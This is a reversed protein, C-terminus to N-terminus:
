TKQKLEPINRGYVARTSPASGGASGMWTKYLAALSGDSRLGSLVYNVFQVFASDGPPLGLGYPVDASPDGVIKSSTDQAQLGALTTDDGTIAVAEGEQFKVLCQGATPSTVIRAGSEVISALSSSGTVGCVPRNKFGGIATAKEDERVLLKRQGARYYETSFNIAPSSSTGQWRACTITMREAVIDVGGDDISRNLAPQRDALALVKYEIQSPGLGLAAAIRAALEVDYGELSGDRPNTAGWLQADGSTGVVLRKRKRIDAM